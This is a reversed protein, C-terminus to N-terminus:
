NKIYGQAFKAKDWELAMKEHTSSPVTVGEIKFSNICFSSSASNKMELSFIGTKESAVYYELPPKRIVLAKGGDNKITGSHLGARCISSDDTYIGTGWISGVKDSCQAPCQVV